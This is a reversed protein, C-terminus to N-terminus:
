CIILSSTLGNLFLCTSNDFIKNNASNEFSLTNIDTHNSGEWDFTSDAIASDGSENIWIDMGLVADSQNYAWTNYTANYKNLAENWLTNNASFLANYTSNFTTAWIANWLDFVTSTHNYAFQNVWNNDWTSNWNNFVNLTHNISVNTAYSDYTSNYKNLAEAWLTANGSYLAQYTANYKNLAEIWLMKSAPATTM